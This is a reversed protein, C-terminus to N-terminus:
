LGGMTGTKRDVTMMEACKSYLELVDKNSNKSDIAAELIVLAYEPRQSSVLGKALEHCRIPLGPGISSKQLEKLENIGNDRKGNCCYAAALLFKAPPYQGNRELLKKLISVAESAGGLHLKALAYNYHAEKMEPDLKMAKKATELVDEYKGLSCYSIGMNIYARAVNPEIAIFREWLEIAEDHKKIIEAQIALERIAVADDGMKDLKKKGTQYYIEIKKSSKEKNLKGYHHVPIACKKVTIGATKLSPEVLEHIPYEFRINGEKRFLRVKESPIWGTASEEREYHGDNATWGVQNVDMTYNRTNILFAVKQTASQRIIKKFAEYDLASIVEDADLHFTWSGSAKSLSFNRAESFDGTWKFDFVKAGFVRAIEATRDESGTDIVIMEDVVPKVSKLCRALCEEENKAIMCLSVTHKKDKTKDIEIPGILNRIKLAFPLIGDDVGCLAIADEIHSMAEINKGQKILVDILQYRLIKNNPSLSCAEEFIRAAREFNGSATVASHYNTVIDTITPSLIFGKEFLDMAKEQQSDWLIAGLNTYPEGYGPDSEIAKNFCDEAFSIDKKKFALVGKLNLAPAFNGNISLIRDAYDQAEENDGAGEKCYGLLELRKVDLENSPIENLVDIADKYKKANLLIEALTYYPRKDDPSLGIGELLIEVANETHGRQDADCGKEIAKLTLFKKGSHSKADARNWKTNFYKKSQPSVKKNQQHVYVDGAILNQRGELLSRLCFDEDAFGDPGFKEDFFGIKELLNRKFLMCSGDISYTPIRRCSNKTRFSEAFEDIEDESVNDTKAVKQFGRTLNSMPGVIGADPVRKFCEIMGSLWGKTVRVDNSLLVIYEGTSVKMGENLYRAFYSGKPCKIMRYNSNENINKKLWKEMGKTTGNNVFVIEHPEVTHRRISEICNKIYKQQNSTPVIISVNINPNVSQERTLLKDLIQRADENMPDLDLVQHYFTKADDFKKLSVCIHGIIVLTEIDEPNIYLVRNYLTLAEEVRGLEVYYFDALNKLFTINQPQLEVAREYHERAKVKEGDQFYLVGLDNHAIVFEPHDSLLKKLGEKAEQKKGRSLLQQVIHYEEEISGPKAKHTNKQNGAPLGHKEEVSIFHKARIFGEKVLNGLDCSSGYPLDRSIDWKKKFIEWNKHLSKEYDIQEGAFTRSGFHHIFCDQAIRSEYGALTARLSFDDDEFNGLGYREDLGGIKEIVVRKILMCFGVVRWYRVSKGDNKEAFETSFRKLGKLNNTNYSVSKVLQPGSVYNSKPGVIGILPSEEACRIMKSLWGPTTVVDNNMLLVYGARSAAIGQNNGKAFGFNKKNKIVQLRDEPILRPLESKLYEATGDTSANDIVILEFPLSTHNIISEMCKRTYALQNRVLIIISVLPGVSNDDQGWIEEFEKLTSEIDEIKSIQKQYRKYIRERNKGFEAGLSSTMTTGDTRWNVQATTSAIHKFTCKKSLRIWFDWDELTTLTEDFLGAGIGKEREFVFCNVPAINGVLLKDREFDISYPVKKGVLRYSDKHKEYTARVADTYVVPTDESVHAMATELHNPYFLDDDDLLAIYKGRAIKIGTNRAAALGMNKAHSVYTINKKENLKSIVDEVSRGADNVVITEFRRFRQQLISELAAALMDPRNYTPVIVSVLPTDMKDEERKQAESIALNAYHRQQSSKKKSINSSGVRWCYLPEKINALEYDEALRLWLDYDQAFKYKENYGGARLLAEKQMMVSGHGFWNQTKLGEKIDSSNTLVEIVSTTKGKDDIQYYSSGAAAHDPNREIFEVQRAFRHPLSIDDADMRAIYEGKAAKVGRNLSRTLGLNKRNKIVRIRPDSFSQLIKNSKDNSADDVIIFEFDQFTQQLVSEIAEKLHKEGNYVSMVVSIKPNTIRDRHLSVPCDADWAGQYFKRVRQNHGKLYVLGRDDIFEYLKNELTYKYLKSNPIGVFVNFWTVTPKIEKLLAITQKLEAQTETPVGVVVSAAVKIGFEHCWKFANRTQEVTIDKNLFDLVRQSGSEVGFYFGCAGARSMLEIIERDLTNVRTECAWSIKIGKELLLNCFRKLRKKNLTFNDERFYIGKAGYQKVLHEIDSVIREASFCTYKKGWISGVSCFTCNFPCGRSTNMTFVPKQPFWEGGWNYPLNIFYDWAPMPLEDLDKIRPYKIVRKKTKGAVIDKIAQEGEGQVVYDVFDPITDLCVTAHPGGVIIKGKWRGTQRLWELKYLMRLTDQYCITNAYIGVYDINNQLLYDKEIFNSPQLYNDIFFVNHGANRLVSILFGIGIPPRKETTSFPSQSPAASTTLLVHKGSRATIQRKNESTHVAQKVGQKVGNGSGSIISSTETKLKKIDYFLENLRKEWAHATLARAHGAKAIEIRKNKHTLYYRIKEVAERRDEFCEVEKGIEFYEEIGDAYETLLFGGSMPVEFFRGKIQKIGDDSSSSSFNLNIKSANFVKIINNFELFTGFGKGFVVVPLGKDKLYALHERRRGYDQGVFSVDYLFQLPMKKYYGQNAAWQSRVVNLGIERYKDFAYRDTTISCFVHPAIFKSYNDFRWHDDSFWAITKAGLMKIKDLTSIDVQDQHTIFFVYDPKERDVLRLVEDNMEKKGIQRLREVYNYNITNSCIKKLPEYFNINCDYNICGVSLLFIKEPIVNKNIYSYTANDLPKGVFFMIHGDPGSFTKSKIKKFKKDLIREIEEVTPEYLHYPNGSHNGGPLIVPCSMVLLGDKRLIRVAEDLFRIGVDKNVHEFGELCVVVDISKGPLPINAMNGVLFDIGLYHKKAYDVAEKSIDIGAVRKGRLLSTGWGVGCPVDVVDKDKTYANAFNYRKYLNERYPSGKIFGPDEPHARESM